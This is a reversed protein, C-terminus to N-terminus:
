YVFMGKISSYNDKMGFFMLRLRAICLKNLVKYEKYCCSHEFSHYSKVTYKPRYDSCM